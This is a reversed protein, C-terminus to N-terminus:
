NDKYYTKASVRKTTKKWRGKVLTETTLIVKEGDGSSADETFVYVKKPRNNVIQYRVTQHWCCGSKNFTELTKTKNNVEFLGLNESALMTLDNSKIFKHAMKSYLLIDYSPGGYAGDNGNRLALDEAGDFNFDDFVVGSNNEGYLEILNATPKQDTGLELFINPMQITQFAKTENKKSISVTAKGECTEDECKEVKIKVDFNKSAKKLLFNSQAFLSNVSFLLIVFLFYQLKM